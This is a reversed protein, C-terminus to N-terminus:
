KLHTNDQTNHTRVKKMTLGSWNLYRDGDYSKCFQSTNKVILDDIMHDCVSLSWHSVQCRHVRYQYLVLIFNILFIGVM